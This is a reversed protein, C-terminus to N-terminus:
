EIDCSFTYVSQHVDKKIRYLKINKIKRLFEGEGGFIGRRVWQDVLVKRVDCFAPYHSLLLDFRHGGIPNTVVLESEIQDLIVDSVFEIYNEMVSQRFAVLGNFAKQAPNGAEYYFALANKVASEKKYIETM